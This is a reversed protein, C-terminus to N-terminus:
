ILTQDVDAVSKSQIPGFGPLDLVAALGACHSLRATLAVDPDLGGETTKPVGPPGSASGHGGILCQRSKLQSAGASGFLRNELTAKQRFLIVVQANLFAVLYIRDV